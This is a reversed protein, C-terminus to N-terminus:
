LPDAVMTAGVGKWFFLPHFPSYFLLDGCSRMCWSMGSRHRPGSESAPACSVARLTAHTSPPRVRQWCLRESGEPLINYLQTCKASVRSKAMVSLFKAHMCPLGQLHRPSDVHMRAQAPPVPFLSPSLSPSLSLSISPSPPSCALSLPPPSRALLALPCRPSRPRCVLMHRSRVTLKAARMSEPFQNRIQQLVSFAFEFSHTDLAAM